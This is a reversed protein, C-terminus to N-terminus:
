ATFSWDDIYLAIEKLFGIVSDEDREKLVLFLKTLHKCFQKNKARKSIFDHCDHFLEKKNIDIGINYTQKQSGKVKAIIIGENFDFRKIDFSDDTVSIARNLTGKDSFARLLVGYNIKSNEKIREKVSLNKRTAEINCIIEDKRISHWSKLKKKLSSTLSINKQGDEILFESKISKDIFITAKEPVMLFLEFSIKYLLDKKSIKPLDIIKWVYLVLESTNNRPVVLNM